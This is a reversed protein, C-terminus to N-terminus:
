QPRRGAMSEGKRPGPITWCVADAVGIHGRVSGFTTLQQVSRQRHAPFFKKGIIGGGIL